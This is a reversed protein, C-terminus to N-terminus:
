ARLGSLNVELRQRVKLLDAMTVKTRRLGAERGLITALAGDVSRSVTDNSVHGDLVCQHFKAINRVAGAEYLNEVEGSYGNDHGKLLAKGGYGVQAFGTQGQAQCVVDFGTLNNLHKGRHSHILGNEFEFTLQFVDHSDGHPDARGIRSYGMASVPRQGALWLAADV